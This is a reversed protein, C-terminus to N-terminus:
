SSTPPWNPPRWGCTRITRSPHTPAASAAAPRAPTAAAAAVPKAVTFDGAANLGGRSVVAVCNALSAFVQSTGDLSFSFLRGQAFATMAKSKRFEVILNSTNPMPVTLMNANLPTGFVHFQSQGDFTLDIPFTQGPPLQWAQHAFGLNWSGDLQMAVYM